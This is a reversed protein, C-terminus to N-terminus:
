SVVILCLKHVSAKSIISFTYIVLEVDTYSWHFTFHIFSHNSTRSEEVARNKNYACLSRDDPSTCFNHFTTHPTWPSCFWRRFSHQHKAFQTSSTYIYTQQTNWNCSPAQTNWGICQLLQHMQHKHMTCSMSHPQSLHAPQQFIHFIAPQLCKLYSLSHTLSHTHSDCNQVHWKIEQFLFYTVAPQITVFVSLETCAATNDAVCVTVCNIMRNSNVDTVCHCSYSHPLLTTNLGVTSLISEM